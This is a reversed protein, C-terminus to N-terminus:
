RTQFNADGEVSFNVIITKGGQAAATTPTAYDTQKEGPRIRSLLFCGFAAGGVMLIGFEKILFYAAVIGSLVLVAGFSARRIETNASTNYPDSLVPRVSLNEVQLKLNQVQAALDSMRQKEVRVDYEHRECLTVLTRAYYGPMTRLEALREARQSDSLGRYIALAIQMKNEDDNLQRM